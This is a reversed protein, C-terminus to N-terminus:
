QIAGAEEHDQTNLFKQAANITTQTNRTGNGGNGNRSPSIMQTHLETYKERFKRPSLINAQWFSDKNAFHFVKAMESLDRNDIENLLRIDNAWSELNPPKMSPAVQSVSKCFWQAFKMHDDSFKNRSTTRKNSNKEERRKEERALASTVSQANCEGSGANARHQAVRKATNARKKATEGNHKGFNTLTVVGEHETMWGTQLMANCFNTVGVKRDLLKKTVSPANGDETHEDFWAWIRFVKGFAADPDIELIEAIQWIEPKDPTNLEVKAWDGSM